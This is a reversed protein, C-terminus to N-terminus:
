YSSIPLSEDDTGKTIGRIEIFYSYGTETTVQVREGVKHGLVAGLIAGLPGGFLSGIYGGIAM